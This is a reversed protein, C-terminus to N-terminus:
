IMFALLTTPFLNKGRGLRQMVLANALLSQGSRIMCGWGTDSTFGGQDVLQHRLRLSLSMAASANPDQSKKIAPFNSRYTLWIRSEFDDLFDSPWARDENSWGNRLDAREGQYGNSAAVKTRKPSRDSGQGNSVTPAEDHPQPRSIISQEDINASGVGYDKGLCWIPSKSADDNKPEPDWFYQVIRKYPRLDVNSM